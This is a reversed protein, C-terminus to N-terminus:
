ASDVWSWTETLVYTDDHVNRKLISCLGSVVQRVNINQHSRTSLETDDWLQWQYEDLYELVICRMRLNYAVTEFHVCGSKGVIKRSTVSRKSQCKFRENEKEIFKTKKKLKKSIDDIEDTSVFLITYWRDITSIPLVNLILRETLVYQKIPESTVSVKVNDVSIM